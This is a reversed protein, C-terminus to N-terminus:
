AGGGRKRRGVRRRHGPEGCGGKRRLDGGSSPGCSSSTPLPARDPATRIQMQRPGAPPPGHPPAGALVLCLGSPHAGGDATLVRGRGDGRPLRWPPM